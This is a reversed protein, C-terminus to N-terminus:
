IWRQVCGVNRNLAAGFALVAVLCVVLRLVTCQSWQNWCGGRALTSLSVKLLTKAEDWERETVYESLHMTCSRCLMTNEPLLKVALTNM